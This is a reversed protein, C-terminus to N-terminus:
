IMRKLLISSNFGAFATCTKLVIEGNFEQINTVFKIKNEDYLDSVNVLPLLKNKQFCLLLLGIELLTCGGLNHGLYPKFATLLLENRTNKFVNQLNAYEFKDVIKTGIGHPLVVDVQDIKIRASDLSQNIAQQYYKENIAPVTVKWSELNFGGGLYEAYIKANRKKASNYEELVFAAGGDGLIFGDAKNSFPKIRGDAPNIGQSKFWLSKFIDPYDVASIIVKECKGSRILDAANELAYLGSACANNIFLSFGHFDFTKAVHFINMFTQQDYCITKFNNFLDFLISKKTLKTNKEYKYKHISSCVYEHFKVYLEGYGPCESTLILGINNEKKDYEIKSDKIALKVTALFYELDMITDEKKWAYIEDLKRNDIAFNRINFNKVKHYCFKEKEDGDFAYEDRVIGLNKNIANEWIEEQDIGLASIMGLGTLVIRKAKITM